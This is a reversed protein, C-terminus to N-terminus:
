ELGHGDDWGGKDRVGQNGASFKNKAKAKRGGLEKYMERMEVKGPKAKEVAEQRWQEERAERPTVYGSGSRPSSSGNLGSSFSDIYPSNPRSVRSPPVYFTGAMDKDRQSNTKMFM